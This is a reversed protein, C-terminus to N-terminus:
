PFLSSASRLVTSTITIIIACCLGDEHNVHAREYLSNAFSSNLSCFCCCCDCSKTLNIWEEIDCRNLLADSCEGIRDWNQWTNSRTSRRLKQLADIIIEVGAATTSADDDNDDDSLVSWTCIMACLYSDVIRVWANRINQGKYKESMM